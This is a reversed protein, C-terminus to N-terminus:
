RVYELPMPRVPESAPAERSEAERLWKMGAGYGLGVLLFVFKTAKTFQNVDAFCGTAAYAILALQSARVFSAQRVKQLALLKKQMRRLSVGLFIMLGILSLIGVLGHEVLTTIYMNDIAYIKAIDFHAVNSLDHVYDLYVGKFQMHGVGIAPHLLFIKAGLAWYVLRSYFNNPDSLREMFPTNKFAAYAITGAVSAAPVVSMVILFPRRAMLLVAVAVGVWVGRTANVFIGGAMVALILASTWSRNLVWRRMAFPVGLAMFTGAESPHFFSVYPRYVGETLRVLEPSLYPFGATEDFLPNKQTVREVISLAAILLTLWVIWDAVTENKLDNAAEQSALVALFVGLGFTELLNRFAVLDTGALLCLAQSAAFIALAWYLRGFGPQWPKSLLLYIAPAVMLYLLLVTEDTFLKPLVGTQIGWGFPALGLCWVAAIMTITPLGRAIACFVVVLAVFIAAFLGPLGALAVACGFLLAIGFWALTSLAPVMGTASVARAEM